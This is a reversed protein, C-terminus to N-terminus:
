VRTTAIPLSGKIWNSLVSWVPVQRPLSGIKPKAGLGVMFEKGVYVALEFHSNVGVDWVQVKMISRGILDDALLKGDSVLRM